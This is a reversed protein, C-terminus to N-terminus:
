NMKTKVKDWSKIQWNTKAECLLNGEKDHVHITCSKYVVGEQQIPTLVTEQFEEDSLEFTAIGDSKGQYKYSVELSEMILRYGQMGLKNLLLFGSAYEAATALGCAHLGKIHNLNSKRYPLKVQVKHPSLEVITLDHPKNFPIFRKLLFNLKWKGWKSQQASEILRKFDM